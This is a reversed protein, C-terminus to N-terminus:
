SYGGGEQKDMICKRENKGGGLVTLIQLFLLVDLWTHRQYFNWSWNIM